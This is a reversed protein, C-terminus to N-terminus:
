SQTGTYPNTAPPANVIPDANPTPVPNTPTPPSPPAPSPSSHSSPLSSFADVGTSLVQQEFTHQQPNVVAEVNEQLTKARDILGTVEEALDSSPPPPTPTTHDRGVELFTRTSDSVPAPAYPKCPFSIDLPHPPPTAHGSSLTSGGTVFAGVALVTALSSLGGLWVALLRRHARLAGLTKKVFHFQPM